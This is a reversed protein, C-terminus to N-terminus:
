IEVWVRRATCPVRLNWLFSTFEDADKERLMVVSQGLAEAETRDILGPYRYVKRGSALKRTVKRGFVFQYVMSTESARRRDVNYSVIVRLEVTM